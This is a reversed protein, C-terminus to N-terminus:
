RSEGIAFPVRKLIQQDLKLIQVMVIYIGDSYLRKTSQSCKFYSIEVNFRHECCIIIIKSYCLKM